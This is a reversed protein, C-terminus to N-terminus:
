KSDRKKSEKAIRIAKSILTLFITLASCFVAVAAWIFCCVHLIPDVFLYYLCFALFLLLFFGSSLIRWNEGIRKANVM